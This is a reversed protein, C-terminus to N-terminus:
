AGGKAKAIASIADPLWASLINDGEENAIQVRAVAAELAELLDPAAAILNANADRERDNNGPMQETKAITGNRSTVNNYPSVMWPGPTHFTNNM